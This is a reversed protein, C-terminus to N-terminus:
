FPVIIPERTKFSNGILHMIKQTGGGELDCAEEFRYSLERNCYNACDLYLPTLPFSQIPTYLSFFQSIKDM